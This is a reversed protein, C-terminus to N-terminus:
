RDIAEAAYEAFTVGDRDQRGELIAYLRIDAHHRRSVPDYGARWAEAAARAEREAKPAKGRRKPLEKGPVLFPAWALPLWISDIEVYSTM